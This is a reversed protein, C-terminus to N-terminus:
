CCFVLCVWVGLVGVGCRVWFVFRLGGVGLGDVGFGLVWEGVVVVLWLM